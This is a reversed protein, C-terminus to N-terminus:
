KILEEKKKDAKRIVILSIENEAAVNWKSWDFGNDHM